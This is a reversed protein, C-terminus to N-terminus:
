DTECDKEKYILNALEMYDRRVDVWEQPIGRAEVTSYFWAKGLETKIAADPSFMIRESDDVVISSAEKAAKVHKCIVELSRSPRQMNGLQVKKNTMLVGLLDERGLGKISSAYSVLRRDVKMMLAAEQMSVDYENVLRLAQIAKQASDYDRGSMTNTNCKQVIVLEETDPSIDECRIGIGLEKAVRTRHRGDICKGDMMLIPTSQGISAISNKTAEFQLETHIPNFKVYKDDFKVDNPDLMYINSGM